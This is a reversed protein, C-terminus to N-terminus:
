PNSRLMLTSKIVGNVTDINKFKLKIKEGLFGGYMTEEFVGSGTFTSMLSYNGLWNEGDSKLIYVETQVTTNVFMLLESLESVDSIEKEIEAGTAFVSSELIVGDNRFM